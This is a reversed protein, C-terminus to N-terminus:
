TMFKLKYDDSGEPNFGYEESMLADFINCCSAVIQNDVTSIPEKVNKRGKVLFDQIYKDFM